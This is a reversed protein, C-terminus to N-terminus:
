IFDVTTRYEDELAEEICKIFGWFHLVNYIELFIIKKSKRNSRTSDPCYYQEM